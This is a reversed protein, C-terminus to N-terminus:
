DYAHRRKRAALALLGGVTILVLAVQVLWSSNSGTVPLTGTSEGETGVVTLVNSLQLGCDVLVLYDGPPLAPYVVPITVPGDEDDKVQGTGIQVQEGDVVIYATAPSNAVCNICQLTGPTSVNAQIEIPDAICSPQRPNYQASAPPTPLVFAIMAGVVIAVLAFRRM